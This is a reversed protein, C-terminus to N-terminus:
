NILIFDAATFIYYINNITYEYITDATQGACAVAVSSSHAVAAVPLPHLRYLTHQLQAPAPATKPRAPVGQTAM